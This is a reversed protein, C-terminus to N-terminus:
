TKVYFFENVKKSMDGEYSQERNFINIRKEFFNIQVNKSYKDSYIIHNGMHDIFHSRRKWPHQVDKKKYIVLLQSTLSSKCNAM